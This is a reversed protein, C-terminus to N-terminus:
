RALLQLAIETKGLMAVKEAGAAREGVVILNPFLCIFISANVSQVTL